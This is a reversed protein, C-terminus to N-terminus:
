AAEDSQQRHWLTAYRGARALLEDHTGSEIVKGQELVIIQDAEAVTSL